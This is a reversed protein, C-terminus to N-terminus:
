DEKEWEKKKLDGRKVSQIFQNWAFPNLFQMTPQFYRNQNKYVSQEVFYRHNMSSSMPMAAALRAMVNTSLNRRMADAAPDNLNLSMFADKFEKETPFPLIEVEPLMTTDAMLYIIASVSEKGDMPVIYKQKRYGVASIVCTDGALTPLSFFGYENTTTGRTTKPVYFNVGPVGIANEGTVILGSVQVIKKQGIANFHITLLGLVLFVFFRVNMNGVFYFM